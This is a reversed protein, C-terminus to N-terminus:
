TGAPLGRLRAYYALTAERLKQKHEESKPKGKLARRTRERSEATRPQRKKRGAIWGEPIEEGPKLYKEDSRNPTTVWVRGVATACEPRIKGTHSERLKQRSEESMPLRGIEWGADVETGEEIYKEVEGNNVWCHGTARWQCGGNAYPSLNYCQEKGFWMDLLAQELERDESDDSWVEWIFVDPNNRLANQFPYNDKSALHSKKRDEFNVTSGIYFKGNITNTARYTDM